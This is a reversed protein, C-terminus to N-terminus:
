GRCCMVFGCTVDTEGFPEKWNKIAVRTNRAAKIKCYGPYAVTVKNQVPDISRWADWSVGDLSTTYQLQAWPQNDLQLVNLNSGVTQLTFGSDGPIIISFQTELGQETTWPPIRLTSKVEDTLGVKEAGYHFRHLLATKGLKKKQQAKWLAQLWDAIGLLRGGYEVRYVWLEPTAPTITVKQVLFTGRIGRDPLNITVLQGPKWGGVETEFSGKIRPNAHERLDAYGAAEAADITSLSEDVIVHEYVGDGGQVAAVTQQSAIDEVVTIVDIDYRYTFALTAGAPPTPTQASCRVYKEQYNVMFDKTAEDDVHEVGVTKPEGNVAVSLDHPKHPLWWCRAVGDTKVKYTWPDSLMTGGRVYVRNRLGRTDVDHRLHRFNAGSELVLPAPLNQTKPDFFWVNKDYDVYWDWGVYDALEKLCESPRKYDFVIEEVVPAGSQIYDTTFMGNGYKVVIDRAIEDASTNFYTEVVLRRDLQYSYDQCSCEYIKVSPEATVLKVRDIIGAFLKTAGDYVVVEQGEVPQMDKVRFTCTDVTHTLAQEIRFNSLLVNATYDIGAILIRRTM